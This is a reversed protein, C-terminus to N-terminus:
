SGSSEQNAASSSPSLRGQCLLRTHPSLAPSQGQAAQASTVSWPSIVFVLQMESVCPLQHSVSRAVPLSDSVLLDSLLAQNALSFGPGSPAPALLTPLLQWESHGHPDIEEKVIM